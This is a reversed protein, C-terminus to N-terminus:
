ILYTDIIPQLLVSLFCLILFLFHLKRYLINKKLRKIIQESLDKKLDQRMVRLPVDTPYELVEYPYMEEYLKISTDMFRFIFSIFFFFLAFM